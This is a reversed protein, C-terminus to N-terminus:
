SVTDDYFGSAVLEKFRAAGSFGSQTSRWSLSGEPQALDFKVSFVKDDEAAASTAVVGALMLLAVQTKMMSYKQKNPDKKKEKVKTIKYKQPPPVEHFIYESYFLISYFLFVVLVCEEM